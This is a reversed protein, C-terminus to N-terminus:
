ENDTKVKKLIILSVDNLQKTGGTFTRYSDYVERLIVAPTERWHKRIVDYMMDLSYTDGSSNCSTFLGDSYLLAVFDDKLRGSTLSYRFHMDIGLPIGSADLKEFENRDHDYVIMPNHSANAYMYNGDSTLILSCARAYNTTIRSTCLVQNMVNLMKEPFSFVLSRSHLMSFLELGALASDVRNYSLDAIFISSKGKAIRVSDFYDGGMDSNNIYMSSLRIGKITDMEAPILRQKITNVVLRDHESVQEATVEDLILGTILLSQLKVRYIELADLIDRTYPKWNKLRGLLLFGIITDSMNLFPISVDIENDDLFKMIEPHINEKSYDILLDSREFVTNYGSLCKIIESGTEIFKTSIEPGFGYTHVFRNNKRDLLIFYAAQTGIATKLGQFNNGTINRWFGSNEAIRNLESVPVLTENIRELTKVYKRRTVYLRLPALIRYTIALYVFIIISFIYINSENLVPIYPRYRMCLYVPIFQIALFFIAYTIFIYYKRFNSAKLDFVLHNTILLMLFLPVPIFPNKLLSLNFRYLGAAYVAAFLIYVLLLGSTYYRAMSKLRRFRTRSNKIIMVAPISAMISIILIGQIITFINRGFNLDSDLIKMDMVPNIFIFTFDAAVLLFLMVILARFRSIRWSPFIVSIFLASTFILVPIFTIFKIIIETFKIQPLINLLTILAIEIASLLCIYIYLRNASHKKRRIITNAALILSSLVSLGGTFIIIQEM